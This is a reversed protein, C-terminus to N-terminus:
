LHAGIDCIEWSATAAFREIKAAVAVDDNGNDSRVM